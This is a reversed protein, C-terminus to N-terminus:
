YTGVGGTVQFPTRILLWPLTCIYVKTNNSPLAINICKGHFNLLIILIFIFDLENLFTYKVTCGTKIELM